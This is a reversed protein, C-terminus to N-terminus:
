LPQVFPLTMEVSFRGEGNVLAIHGGHLQVVASVLSLGLGAGATSRAPDLRGFRALAEAHRGEEIGQGADSVTVVAADDVTRLTVDISGAGYKLANDILNSVAQGLLERHAPFPRVSQADFRIAREKDEALPGYLEVLDELLVALDVEVFRERGIGAEARSIELATGLMALLQDTEKGIGEIAGHLSESDETLAARDVRARLRTLPSRLDHAMSDTLLRMESVLAEIRDLMANITGGLQDVSDGSGDLPVRRAFDGARVERATTTIRAIRRDIIHVAFWAGAAALPLAMVLATLLADEITRTFQASGEVLHGALLHGGGPVRAAVVGFRGPRDGGVRYLDIKTWHSPVAIVPPWRALNGAVTAGTRDTLLILEDTRGAIRERIVAALGPTGQEEAVAVLDDRLDMALASDAADTRNEVLHVVSFLLMGGFLLELLLIIGIFRAHSSRLWRM